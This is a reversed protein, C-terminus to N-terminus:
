ISNFLRLLYFCSMMEIFSIGALVYGLVKNHEKAWEDFWDIDEEFSSLEATLFIKANLKNEIVLFADLSFAFLASIFCVSGYVASFLLGMIVNFIDFQM